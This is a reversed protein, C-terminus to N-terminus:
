LFPTIDLTKLLYTLNLSQQGKVQQLLDSRGVIDQLNKVGLAATLAKLEQGFATFM